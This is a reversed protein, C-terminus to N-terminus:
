HRNDRTAATGRHRASRRRNRLTNAAALLLMAAALATATLLLTNRNNGGTLPLTNMYLAPIHVNGHTTPSDVQQNGVPYATDKTTLTTDVSWDGDPTDAPLTIHWPHEITGDYPLTNGRTDNADTAVDHCQQGIGNPAPHCIRITDGPYHAKATGRITVQNTAPDRTATVTGPADLLTWQATLEITTRGDGGTDGLGVSVPTTGPRTTGHNAQWTAFLNHAPRTIPSPGSITLQAKQSDTDTLAKTTTPPTGTGTGTHYNITTYPLVGQKDSPNGTTTGAPDTRTDPATVTASLHYLADYNNADRLQPITLKFTCRDSGAAPTCTGSYRSGNFSDLEIGDGTRHGATLTTTIEAWPDTNGWPNATGDAHVNVAINPQVLTRWSATITAASNDTMSTWAISNGTITLHAPDGATIDWRDFAKGAPAPRGTWDIRRTGPNATRIYLIDTHNTQANNYDVTLTLTPIIYHGQPNTGTDLATRARMDPVPIRPGSAPVEVWVDYPTTGFANEFSTDPETGTKTLHTHPGLWLERLDPDNDLMGKVGYLLGTKSFATRTDFSSLDLATLGRCGWFMSVMNYVNTTNFHTVDLTTLGSCGLFMAEMTVTNTTNFHTVDLTALRKCGWFMNRMNYVNTTNFHTVDLTTLGKCVAFMNEMNTTNTTNFHTVDLTTLGSCGYFMSNMSTTQSTEFGAPNTGTFATLASDGSFLVHASEQSLHLTGDIQVERLAPM